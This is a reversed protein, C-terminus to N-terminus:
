KKIIQKLVNEPGEKQVIEWSRKYYKAFPDKPWQKWWQEWYLYEDADKGFVKRMTLIVLAHTSFHLKTNYSEKKYKKYIGYNSEPWRVKNKNGWLLVHTLEHVLMTIEYQINKREHIDLTLPHSFAYPANFSITCEIYNRPWKLGTLKSMYFLIKKDYKNWAKQINKAFKEGEIRKKNNYIIRKSKRLVIDYIDSYTIEVKPIM